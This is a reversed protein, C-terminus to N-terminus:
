KLKISDTEELNIYGFCVNEVISEGQTERGAVQIDKKKIVKMWKKIASSLCVKYFDIEKEYKRKHLIKYLVGPDDPALFLVFVSTEFCYDYIVNNSPSFSRLVQMSENWPLSFSSILSLKELEESSYRNGLVSSLVSLMKRESALATVINRDISLCDIKKLINERNMPNLVISARIGKLVTFIDKSTLDTKDNLLDDSFHVIASDRVHGWVCNKEQKYWVDVAVVQKFNLVVWFCLFLFKM